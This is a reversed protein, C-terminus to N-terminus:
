KSVLRAEKSPIIKKGKQLLHVKIFEAGTFLIQASYYIWVLILILAGAAGFGQSLNSHSLYIGLLFKGISFLLATIFAGLWVDKWQLIVDPIIKFILAFLFTIGLISILFNMVYAIFAFQPLYTLLHSSVFSLVVSIILSVLLLFGVGLVMTFSLFRNKIIGLIGSPKATVGWVANLGTQLAGFFGSAGFLLILASIINSIIHTSPKVQTIMTEIQEAPDNGFTNGIQELINHQIVQANFVLGAIAIAIILLPTISFITYYSLSAALGAVNDTSWSDMLKKVFIKVNM